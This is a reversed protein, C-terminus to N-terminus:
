MLCKRFLQSITSSSFEEVLIPIFIFITVVWTPLCHLPLMASIIPKNEAEKASAQTHQVEGASSPHTTHYLHASGTSM